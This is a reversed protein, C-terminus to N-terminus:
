ADPKGFAAMRELIVDRPNKSNKARRIQAPRVNSNIFKPSPSIFHSM